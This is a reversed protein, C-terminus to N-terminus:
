RNELFFFPLLRESVAANRAGIVRSKAPLDASPRAKIKKGIFGQHGGARGTAIM